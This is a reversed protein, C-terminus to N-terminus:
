SLKFDRLSDFGPHGATEETTKEKWNFQRSKCLKLDECVPFAEISSVVIEHLFEKLDFQPKNLYIVGPKEMDFNKFSQSAQTNRPRQKEIIIIENIPTQLPYCIDYGCRSCVDKSHSHFSGSVKYVNALPKITVHIKFPIKGLIDMLAESMESSSENFDYFLGNKKVTLLDILM